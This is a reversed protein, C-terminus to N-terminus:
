VVRFIQCSSFSRWVNVSVFALVVQGCNKSRGNILQHFLILELVWNFCNKNLIKVM